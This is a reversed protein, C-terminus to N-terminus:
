GPLTPLTVTHAVAIAIFAALKFNQGPSMAKFQTQPKSHSSLVNCM